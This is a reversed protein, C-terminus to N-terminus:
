LGIRVRPGDACYRNVRLVAGSRDLSHMMVPATDFVTNSTQQLLEAVREASEPDVSADKNM